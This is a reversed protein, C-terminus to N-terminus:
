FLIKKLPTLVKEFLFVPVSILIFVIFSGAWSIITSIVYAVLSPEPSDACRRLRALVNATRVCSTHFYVFHWAALGVPHSCMRTQIILKCLVFLLKIEHAPEFWSSLHIHFLETCNHSLIMSGSSNLSMIQLRVSPSVAWGHIFCKWLNLLCASWKEM